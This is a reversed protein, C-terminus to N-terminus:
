DDREFFESWELENWWERELGDCDVGYSPCIVCGDGRLAGHDITPPYTVCLAEGDDRLAAHEASLPVDPLEQVGKRVLRAESEPLLVSSEADIHAWLGRTYRTALAELAEREGPGELTGELLPALADLTAELSRHQAILAGLPGRGEPLQLRERLVPFLVVEERHHHHAGAYGRLFRVFRGGDAPAAEGRLRRAVFTLLAGLVAEIQEHEARLDDVFQM